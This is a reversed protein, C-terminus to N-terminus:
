CRKRPWKAIINRAESIGINFLACLRQAGPAKGLTQLESEVFAHICDNLTRQEVYEVVKIWIRQTQTETLNFRKQLELGNIERGDEIHKSAYEIIQPGLMEVGM